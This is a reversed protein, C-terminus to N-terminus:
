IIRPLGIQLVSGPHGGPKKCLSERIQIDGPRRSKYMTQAMWPYRYTRHSGAGSIAKPGPPYRTSRTYGPIGGGNRPTATPIGAMVRNGHTGETLGRKSSSREHSCETTKHLGGLKRVREGDIDEWLAVARPVEHSNREGAGGSGRPIGM